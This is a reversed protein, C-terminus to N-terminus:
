DSGGAVISIKDAVKVKKARKTGPQKIGERARNIM